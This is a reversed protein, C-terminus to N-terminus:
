YSVAWVEFGADFVEIGNIKRPITFIYEATNEIPTQAWLVQGQLLKSNRIDNTDFGIAPLIGFSTATQVASVFVSKAADIGIDQTAATNRAVSGNMVLHRANDSRYSYQVGTQWDVNADLEKGVGVVSGLATRFTAKPASQGLLVTALGSAAETLTDTTPSPRTLLFATRSVISPGASQTTVLNGYARAAPEETPAEPAARSSCATATAASIAVALVVPMCKQSRDDYRTSKTTM